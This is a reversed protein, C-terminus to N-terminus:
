LCQLFFLEENITSRILMKLAEGSSEDILVNTILNKFDETKISIIGTPEEESHSRSPEKHSTPPKSFESIEKEPEAQTPTNETYNNM